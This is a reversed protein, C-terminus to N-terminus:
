RQVICVFVQLSVSFVLLEKATSHGGCQSHSVSLKTERKSALSAQQRSRRSHAHLHLLAVKVPRVGGSAVLFCSLGKCPSVRTTQQPIILIRFSFPFTFRVAFIFIDHSCPFYLNDPLSLEEVPQCTTERDYSAPFDDKAWTRKWWWSPFLSSVLVYVAAKFIFTFKISVKWFHM